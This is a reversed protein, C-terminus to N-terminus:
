AESAPLSSFHRVLSVLWALTTLLFVVLMVWIAPSLQAPQHRNADVVLLNLGTLFVLTLSAMWGIRRSLEEITRDRREASLWYERHPLNIL